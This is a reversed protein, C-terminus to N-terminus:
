LYHCLSRLIGAMNEGLIKGRTLLNRRPPAWGVRTRWMCEAQGGGMCKGSSCDQKTPGVNESTSQPRFTGPRRRHVAHLPPGAANMRHAPLAYPFRQHMKVCKGQKERNWNKFKPAGYVMNPVAENVFKVLALVKYCTYNTVPIAMKHLQHKVTQLPPAM